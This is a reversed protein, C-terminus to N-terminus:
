DLSIDPINPAIPDDDMWRDKQLDPPTNWQLDPTIDPLGDHLMDDLEDRIEKPLQQWNDYLWGLLAEMDNNFMKLLMDWYLGMESWGGQGFLYLMYQMFNYFLSPNLPFPVKELYGPTQFDPIPDVDKAQELVLKSEDLQNDVYLKNVSETLSRLQKNHDKM